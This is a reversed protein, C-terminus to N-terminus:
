TIPISYWLNERKEVGKACIKWKKKKEMKEKKWIKGNKM